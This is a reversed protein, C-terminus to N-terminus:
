ASALAPQVQELRAREVVMSKNRKKGMELAQELTLERGASQASASLVPAATLLIAVALVSKPRNM